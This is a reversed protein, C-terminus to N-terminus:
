QVTITRPQMSWTGSVTSFAYVHLTYTGPALGSVVLGYGSNTFQPGYYAGVDPRSGNPATGGVYTGMGSGGSPLAYVDM